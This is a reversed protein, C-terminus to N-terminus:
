KGRKQKLSGLNKRAAAVSKIRFGALSKKEIESLKREFKEEAQRISTEFDQLIAIVQASQSLQNEMNSILLESSRLESM